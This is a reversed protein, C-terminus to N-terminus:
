MSCDFSSYAVDGVGPLEAIVIHDGLPLDFRANL